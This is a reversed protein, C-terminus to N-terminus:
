GGVLVLWRGNFALVLISKLFFRESIGTLLPERVARFMFWANWWFCQMDYERCHRYVGTNRVGWKSSAIFANGQASQSNFAAAPAIALVFTAVQLKM